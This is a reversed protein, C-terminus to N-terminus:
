KELTFEITTYEGTDIRYFTLTAHDGASYEGLASKLQNFSEIRKGNFETIIDLARLGAKYVATKQPVEIVLVGEPLDEPLEYEERLTESNPSLSSATVGLKAPTVVIDTDNVVKGHDILDNIVSVASSMPIAFGLSEYEDFIKMVNIGVVQGEMNILPGGSNGSNIAATTQLLKMVKEVRGFGDTVEFLRDKGSIIGETLTGALFEDYPTGIAIVRDGIKLASSDGLPLATLGEAEIKLVAIDTPDDSGVLEAAYERGDYFRVKITGRANEIVHHNTVIYGNEADVVFGSGLASGGATPVIVTCCASSCQEYLASLSQTEGGSPNIVTSSSSPYNHAEESSETKGPDTDKSKDKDKDKDRGYSGRDSHSEREFAATSENETQATQPQRGFLVLAFAACLVIFALTMCVAFVKLGKKKKAKVMKEGNWEYYAGQAYSVPEPEQEPAPETETYENGDPAPVPTEEALGGNEEAVPNENEETGVNENEDM